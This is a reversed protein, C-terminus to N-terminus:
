FIIAFPLGQLRKPQPKADTKAKLTSTAEFISLNSNAPLMSKTGHRVEKHPEKCVNMEKTM